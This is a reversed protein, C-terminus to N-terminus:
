KVMKEQNLSILCTRTVSSLQHDRGSHRWLISSGTSLWFLDFVIKHETYLQEVCELRYGQLRGERRELLTLDLNSFLSDLIGICPINGGGNGM